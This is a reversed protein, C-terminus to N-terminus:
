KEVAMAVEELRVARAALISAKYLLNLRSPISINTRMEREGDSERGVM